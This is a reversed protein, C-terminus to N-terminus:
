EEVEAALDGDDGAGAGADTARDGLPEGLGSGGDGDAIQVAAGRLGDCGGDRAGAARGHRGGAVHGGLLVALGQDGGRDLREAARRDEHVVGAAASGLGEVHRQLLEDPGVLQVHEGAEAHALEDRRVHLVFPWPAITLMLEMAPSFLFWPMVDYEDELAATFWRVRLM